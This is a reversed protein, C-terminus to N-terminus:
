CDEEMQPSRSDGVSCAIGNASIGKGEEVIQSQMCGVEGPESEKAKAEALKVPVARIM